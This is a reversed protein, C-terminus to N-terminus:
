GLEHDAAKLLSEKADIIANRRDVILQGLDGTLMDLERELKEFIARAQPSVVLRVEAIKRRLHRHLDEFESTFFEDETLGFDDDLNGLFYQDWQATYWVELDHFSSLLAAYSASRNDWVKESRSRKASLRSTLWVGLLAVVAGILPAILGDM